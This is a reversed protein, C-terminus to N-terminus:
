FDFKATGFLTKFDDDSFYIGAGIYWKPSPNVKDSNPLFRTIDDIGTTLYVNTLFSFNLSTKFHAYKSVKNKQDWKNWDFAEVTWKIKDDFLFVDSGIGGATEFLGFRFQWDGWRRAFQANIRLSKKERVTETKTAGSTETTTEKTSENLDTFGLLYYKDPRTRFIVNFYHQIEKNKRFEGHYDVSVRLKKTPSLFKKASYLTEELDNIATDDNILRGLSGEGKDLKESISSINGTAKHINSISDTIKSQNGENLINKLADTIEKINSISSTLNQQNDKIIKKAGSLSDRLDVVISRLNEEGEKTGIVNALSSTIKKLDKGVSGAIEILSTLNVPDEMPPIYEGSELYIGKDDTRIIEVFVDGLLGKERITVESGIPILVDSDIELALRTKNTMLKIEKVKGVLVGNTKVHTKKLVGRANEILTYYIKQDKSSFVDPSLFFFMYAIILGAATAFLGVKTETSITPKM